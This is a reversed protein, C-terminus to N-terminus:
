VIKFEAKLEELVSNFETGGIFDRDVFVAAVNRDTDVFTGGVVGAKVLDFGVATL